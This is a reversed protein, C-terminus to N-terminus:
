PLALSSSINFLFLSRRNSRIAAICLNDVLNITLSCVEAFNVLVKLPKNAIKSRIEVTVPPVNFNANLINVSIRFNNSISMRSKVALIPSMATLNLSQTSETRSKEATNSLIEGLIFPNTSFIFSHNFPNLPISLIGFYINSLKFDPNAAIPRKTLAFNLSNLSFMTSSAMSNINVPNVDTGLLM